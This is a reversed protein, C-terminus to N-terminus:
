FFFLNKELFLGKESKNPLPRKKLLGIKQNSTDPQENRVKLYLFFIKPM